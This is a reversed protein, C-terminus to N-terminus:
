FHEHFDLSNYTRSDKYWTTHTAEPIFLMFSKIFHVHLDRSINWIREENTKNKQKDQQCTNKTPLPLPHPLPLNKKNHM